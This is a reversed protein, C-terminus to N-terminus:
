KQNKMKRRNKLHDIQNRIKTEKPYSLIMKNFKRIKSTHKKYFKEKNQDKVKHFM